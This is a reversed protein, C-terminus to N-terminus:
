SDSALTSMLDMLEKSDIKDQSFLADAQQLFAKLGADMRLGATFIRNTEEIGQAMIKQLEREQLEDMGLFQMSHDVGDSVDEVVNLIERM